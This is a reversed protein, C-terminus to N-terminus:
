GLGRKILKKSNKLNCRVASVTGFVCESFKSRLLLLRESQGSVMTKSLFPGM